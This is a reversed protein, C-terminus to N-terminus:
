GPPVVVAELVRRLVEDGAAGASADGACPECCPGAALQGATRHAAATRRERRAMAPVPTAVPAGATAPAPPFSCAGTSCAHGATLYAILEEPWICVFEAGARQLDEATHMGWAVAASRIGSARCDRVDGVTDTVLMVEGPQYARPVADELYSPECRRGIGYTPDALFRAISDEKSPFVDGSFVHAFCHALGNAVLVRRVADMTNTTLIVNTYRGALARVVGAMGPILEPNYEASLLDKFTRKVELAREPTGCVEDLSAWLNREFLAYFAEPTDVGLGYRANVKEFVVWSAQRTQVLTGDFDWILARLDAM